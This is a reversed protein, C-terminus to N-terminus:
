MQLMLVYQLMCLQVHWVQMETNTLIKDGWREKAKMRLGISDSILYWVVSQNGAKRTDEIEQACDFYAKARDLNYDRCWQRFDVSTLHM